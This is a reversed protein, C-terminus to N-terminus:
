FQQTNGPQEEGSRATIVGVDILIRGGDVGCDHGNVRGYVGRDVRGIRDGTRGEGHRRRTIRAYSKAAIGDASVCANVSVLSHGAVM